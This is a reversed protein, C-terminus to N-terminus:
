LRKHFTRLSQTVASECVPCKDPLETACDACWVKHSCPLFVCNAYQAQCNLCQQMHRAPSPPPDEDKGLSSGSAPFNAPLTRLTTSVPARCIPCMGLRQACRMCAVEHACPMLISNIQTEFCVACSICSDVTERDMGSTDRNELLGEHADAMAIPATTERGVCDSCCGDGRPWIAMLLLLLLLCLLVAGVAALTASSLMPCGCTGRSFPVCPEAVCTDYAVQCTECPGCGASAGCTPSSPSPPSFPPPAPTFSPPAYPSSSVNSANPADPAAVVAAGVRLMTGNVTSSSTGNFACVALVPWAGALISCTQEPPCDSDAGCLLACYSRVSPPAESELRCLPEAGPVSANPLPCGASADCPPACFERRCAGSGDCDAVGLHEDAACPPRGYHYHGSTAALLPILM